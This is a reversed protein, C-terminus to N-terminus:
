FLINTYKQYGVVIFYKPIHNHNHFYTGEEFYIVQM